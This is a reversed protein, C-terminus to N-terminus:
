GATTEGAPSTTVIVARLTHRVIATIMRPAGSIV